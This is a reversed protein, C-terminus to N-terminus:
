AGRSSVLSEVYGSVVDLFAGVAYDKSDGVVSQTAEPHEVGDSDVPVVRIAVSDSVACYVRAQSCVTGDALEVPKINIIM